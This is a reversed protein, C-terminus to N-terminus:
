RANRLDSIMVDENARLIMRQRNAATLIQAREKLAFLSDVEQNLDFQAQQDFNSFPTQM